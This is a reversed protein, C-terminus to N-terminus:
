QPSQRRLQMPWLVACCLVAHRLMARRLWAPWPTRKIPSRSRCLCSSLLVPTYGGRARSQWSPARLMLGPLHCTCPFCPVLGAANRSTAQGFCLWTALCPRVAIRGFLIASFQVCAGYMSASQCVFQDIRSEHVFNCVCTCLRPTFFPWVTVCCEHVHGPVCFNLSAPLCQV